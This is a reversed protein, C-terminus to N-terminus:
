SIHDEQPFIATQPSNKPRQVKIGSIDAQFQLLPDCATVGGDVRLLKIDYKSDEPVIMGRFESADYWKVWILDGPKLDKLSVAKM